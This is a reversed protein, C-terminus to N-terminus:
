ARGSGPLFISRSYQSPPGSRKGSRQCWAARRRSRHPIMNFNITRPLPLAPLLATTQVPVDRKNISAPNLAARSNSRSAAHPIAGSEREPIKIVWSCPSWQLPNSIKVLFCGSGMRQLARVRSINRLPRLDSFCHCMMGPLPPNSNAPMARSVNETGCSAASGTPTTSRCLSDESPMRLSTPWAVATM